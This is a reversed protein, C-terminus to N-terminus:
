SGMWQGGAFHQDAWSQAAQRSIFAGMPVRGLDPDGLRGIFWAGSRDQLIQIESDDQARKKARVRYKTM